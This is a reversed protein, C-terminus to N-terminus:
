PRPVAGSVQGSGQPGGTLCACWPRQFTSGRKVKGSGPLVQGTVELLQVVKFSLNGLKVVGAVEMVKLKCVFHVKSCVSSQGEERCMKGMMNFTDARGLEPRGPTTWILLENHRRQSLM